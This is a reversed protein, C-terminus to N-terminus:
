PKIINEVSDLVNQVTRVQESDKLKFRLVGRSSWCAAVMEHGAIARMKAFSTKTLDEFFPFCYRGPRDPTSPQSRPAFDKKGRFVIDRLDRDFFRAIVPKPGEGRAPLIHAYELTRELPPVADLDGRQVAGRFIPLLLSNYVIKKVERNNTEATAPISLGNIRISWSRHHQELSNLRLTLSNIQEEKFAMAKSLAANEANAKELLKEMRSLRAPLNELADLKREMGELKGNLGAIIDELQKKTFNTTM